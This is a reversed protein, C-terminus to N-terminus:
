GQIGAAYDGGSHTAPIINDEKVTVFYSSSLGNIFLGVPKESSLDSLVNGLYRIMRVLTRHILHRVM